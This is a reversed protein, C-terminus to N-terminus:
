RVYMLLCIWCPFLIWMHTRNSNGHLWHWIVHFNKYVVAVLHSKRKADVSNRGALLSCCKFSLYLVAHRWSRLPLPISDFVRQRYIYFVIVDSWKWAVSSLTTPVFYPYEKNIIELMQHFWKIQTECNEITDYIIMWRIWYSIANDSLVIPAILNM